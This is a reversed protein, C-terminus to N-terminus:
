VSSLNQPELTRGNGSGSACISFARAASCLAAHPPSVAWLARAVKGTVPKGPRPWQEPLNPLIPRM